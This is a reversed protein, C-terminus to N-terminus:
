FVGTSDIISIRATIALHDSNCCKGIIDIWINAALRTSWLNEGKEAKPLIEM